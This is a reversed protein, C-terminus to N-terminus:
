NNGKYNIIFDDKLRGSKASHSISNDFSYRKLAAHRLLRESNELIKEAIQRKVDLLELISLIEISGKLETFTTAGSSVILFPRCGLRLLRRIGNIWLVRKGYLGDRICLEVYMKGTSLMGPFSKKIRSLEEIPVQVIDPQLKIITSMCVMSAGVICVISYKERLRSITNSDLKNSYEINIRSYIPITTLASALSDETKGSICFGSCGTNILEDYDEFHESLNLDYFMPVPFIQQCDALSKQNSPALYSM